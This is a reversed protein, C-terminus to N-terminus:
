PECKPCHSLNTNGIWLPVLPSGCGACSTRGDTNLAKLDGPASSIRGNNPFLDKIGFGRPLILATHFEALTSEVWLSGNYAVQIDNWVYAWTLKSEFEPSMPPAGPEGPLAFANGGASRYSSLVVNMDTKALDARLRSAAGSVLMWDGHYCVPMGIWPIPRNAKMDSYGETFLKVESM